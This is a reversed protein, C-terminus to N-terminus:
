PANGFVRRHCLGGVVGGWDVSLQPLPTTEPFISHEEIPEATESPHTNCCRAFRDM